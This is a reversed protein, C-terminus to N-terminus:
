RAAKPKRKAGASAQKREATVRAWRLRAATAIKARAAASIKRRASPKTTKARKPKPAAAAPPVEVPTTPASADLEIGFVDAVESDTMVPAGQTQRVAEAASAQSIL